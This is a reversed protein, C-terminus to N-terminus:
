NHVSYMKICLVFNSILPGTTYLLSIYLPDWSIRALHSIMHPPIVYGSDGGVAWVVELGTALHRELPHVQISCVLFIESYGCRSRSTTM